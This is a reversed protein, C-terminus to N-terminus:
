KAGAEDLWAKIVQAHSKEAKPKYYGLKQGVLGELESKFAPDEEIRKLFAQKFKAISEEVTGKGGNGKWKFPNGLWGPEGPKTNNMHRGQPGRMVSIADPDSVPVIKSSTEQPKERRILDVAEWSGVTAPTRKADSLLPLTKSCIRSPKKAKMLFIKLALVLLATRCFLGRGEGSKGGM